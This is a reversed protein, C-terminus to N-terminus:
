EREDADEKKEYTQTLIRWAKLASQRTEWADVIGRSDGGPGSLRKIMWKSRPGPYDPDPGTLAYVTRGIDHEAYVNDGFPTQRIPVAPVEEYAKRLPSEEPVAAGDLWRVYDKLAVRADDLSKFPGLSDAWTEDWFFWGKGETHFIVNDNSVEM